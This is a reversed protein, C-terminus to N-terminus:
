LIRIDFLTPACSLHERKKAECVNILKDFKEQSAIKDRM